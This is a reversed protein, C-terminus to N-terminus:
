PVGAASVLIIQGVPFTLRRQLLIKTHAEEDLYNNWNDFRKTHSTSLVLSVPTAVTEGSENILWQNAM